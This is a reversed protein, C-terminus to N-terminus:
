GWSSMINANMCLVHLVHVAWFSPDTKGRLRKRVFGSQHGLNQRFGMYSLWIKQGGVVNNLWMWWHHIRYWFGYICHLTIYIYIYVILIFIFLLSWRFFICIVFCRITFLFTRTYIYIIYVTYIYHKSYIYIYMHLWIYIYHLQYTYIYIYIYINIYLYEITYLRAFFDVERASRPSSTCFPLNCWTTACGQVAIFIGHSFRFMGHSFTFSHAFHLYKQLFALYSCPSEYLLIPNWNWKIVVHPPKVSLLWM